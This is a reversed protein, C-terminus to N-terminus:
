HELRLKDPVGDSCKSTASIQYNGPYANFSVSTVPGGRGRVGPVPDAGGSQYEEVEIGLDQWHKSVLQTDSDADAGATDARKIVYVFATGTAGGQQECERVGPGSVHEWTGGAATSSDEVFDVVSQKAESPQMGHEGHDDSCSSLFLASCGLTM